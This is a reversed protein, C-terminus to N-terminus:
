DQQITLFISDVMKTVVQKDHSIKAYSRLGMIQVQLYSALYKVDQNKNIEACAQAELFTTAFSTEIQQLLLKAHALLAANEQTLESVTKALMCMGSPACTQSTIVAEEVFAKLGRLPSGTSIKLANLQELGQQTYHQLAETFLGEKSGFTAYISGPRMDIIDQLNRMSTGHFGKEWYLNMAKNVIDLRNKKIKKAMMVM